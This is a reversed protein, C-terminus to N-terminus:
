SRSPSHNGPPSNAFNKRQQIIALRQRNSTGGWIGPYRNAIAYELCDTKVPCNACVAKVAQSINNPYSAPLPYFDNLNLDLCHGAQLWRGGKPAQNEQAVVLTQNFSLVEMLDVELPYDFELRDM